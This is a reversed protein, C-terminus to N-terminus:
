LLTLQPSLISPNQSQGGAISPNIGDETSDIPDLEPEGPEKLHLGTALLAAIHNPIL